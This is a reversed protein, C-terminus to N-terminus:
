LTHRRGAQPVVTEVANRPAGLFWEIANRHEDIPVKQDAEWERLAGEDVGLAWALRKRAIGLSRRRTVIREGITLPKPFPDYGLFDMIRPLMRVSPESEDTEWGILTWQNVGLRLAVDKQYM